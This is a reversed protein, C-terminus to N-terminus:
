WIGLVSCTASLSTRDETYLRPTPILSVPNAKQFNFESSTKLNIKQRFQSVKNWSVQVPCCRGGSLFAFTDGGDNRIKKGPAQQQCGYSCRCQRPTSQAISAARRTPASGTPASPSAPRRPLAPAGVSALLLRGAFLDSFLYNQSLLFSLKAHHHRAFTDGGDNRTKKGAGQAPM